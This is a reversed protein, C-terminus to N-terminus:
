KLGQTRQSLEKEQNGEPNLNEREEIRSSAQKGMVLLVQDRLERTPRHPWSFTRGTLNATLHCRSATKRNSKHAAQNETDTGFTQKEKAATRDRDLEQEDINQLHRELARGYTEAQSREQGHAQLETEDGTRESTPGCEPKSDQQQLTGTRAARRHTKEKVRNEQQETRNSRWHLV